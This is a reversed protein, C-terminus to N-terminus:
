SVIRLVGGPNSASYSCVYSLRPVLVREKEVFETYTKKLCVVLKCFHVPRHHIMGTDVCRPVSIYSAKVILHAFNARVIGATIMADVLAAEKDQHTSNHRM